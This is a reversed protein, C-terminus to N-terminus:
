HREAPRGGRFLLAAAPSTILLVGAAVGLRRDLLKGQDMSFDLELVDLELKFVGPNFNLKFACVPQGRVEGHWKQPRLFLENLFRRVLPLNMGAEKVSGIPVDNADLILITKMGTRRLAGVKVQTASDIVDYAVFFGLVQRPQISVLETRMAEEAYLRIDKYWKFPNENGEIFFVLRDSPDYIYYTVGFHKFFHKFFQKRLLYTQHEFVSPLNAAAASTKFEAM